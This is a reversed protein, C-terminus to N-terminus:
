KARPIDGVSGRRRIASSGADFAGKFCWWSSCWSCSSSSCRFGVDFRSDGYGGM